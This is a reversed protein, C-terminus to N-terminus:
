GSGLAKGSRSCYAGEERGIDTGAGIAIGFDAQTVATAADSGVRMMAIVRGEQQLLWVEQTQDQRMAHAFVRDIGVERAIAGASRVNDRTIGEFAAAGSRARASAEGCM